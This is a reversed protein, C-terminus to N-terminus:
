WKGEKKLIKSLTCILRDRVMDVLIREVKEDSVPEMTDLKKAIDPIGVTMYVNTLEKIRKRYLAEHCQKMLGIHNDSEFVARHKDFLTEFQRIDTNDFAKSIEYYPLCRIKASKTVMVSTYKPLTRWQGDHILSVLSYKKFAELQIASVANQTPASIVLILFDLARDFNKNGIYIMAGYYHYELFSVISTAYTVPDVTEIDQDLIRLPYKYAKALLCCKALPAHLSTLVHPSSAMKEIATMLPLVPVMPKELSTALHELATAVMAVRAPALRLQQIDVVDIFHCLMQLLQGANDADAILCRATIFYLYGLSHVAPDLITLPDLNDSTYSRLQAESLKNLKHAILLWQTTDNVSVILALVEDIPQSTVTPNECTQM